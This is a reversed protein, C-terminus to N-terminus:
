VSPDKCYDASNELLHMELNYFNVMVMIMIYCLKKIILLLINAVIKM